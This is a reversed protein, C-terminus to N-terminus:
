MDPYDSEDLEDEEPDQEEISWIQDSAVRTLTTNQALWQSEMGVLHESLTLSEIPCFNPSELRRQLMARLAPSTDEFEGFSPPISHPALTIELDRLDPANGSLHDYVRQSASAPIKLALRRIAPRSRLKLLLLPSILM